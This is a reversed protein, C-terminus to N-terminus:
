LERKFSKNKENKKGKNSNNNNAKAKQANVPAKKPVKTAQKVAPKMKSDQEVKKHPKTKVAPQDGLAEVIRKATNHGGAEYAIKEAIASEPMGSARMGHIRKITGVSLKEIKNEIEKSKRKKKSLVEAEVRTEKWNVTTMLVVILLVIRWLSMRKCSVM